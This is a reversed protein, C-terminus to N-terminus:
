PQRRFVEALLKGDSARVMEGGRWEFPTPRNGDVVVPMGDPVPELVDAWRDFHKREQSVSKLQVMEETERHYGERDVTLDIQIREPLSFEGIRVRGFYQIKTTAQYDKGNQRFATDITVQAIGLPHPFVDSLVIECGPQDDAVAAFVMRGSQASIRRWTAVRRLPEILDGGLPLTYGLFFRGASSKFVRNVSDNWLKVESELGNGVFPSQQNHYLLVKGLAGTVSVFDDRLPDPRSVRLVIRDPYYLVQEVQPPFEQECGIDTIRVTHRLQLERGILFQRWQGLRNIAQQCDQTEDVANSQAEAAQSALVLVIYAGLRKVWRWPQFM